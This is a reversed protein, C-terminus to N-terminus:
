RQSQRYYPLLSYRSERASTGGGHSRLGTKSKFKTALSFDREPDFKHNTAMASRNLMTGM